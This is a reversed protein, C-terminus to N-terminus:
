SNTREVVSGVGTCFAGLQRGHRRDSKLAANDNVNEEDQQLTVDGDGNGRVLGQGLWRPIKDIVRMDDQPLSHPTSQECWSARHLYRHLDYM